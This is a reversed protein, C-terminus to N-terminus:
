HLFIMLIIGLAGAISAEIGSRNTHIIIITTIQYIMMQVVQHNNNSNIDINELFLIFHINWNWNNEDNIILMFLYILQHQHLVKM